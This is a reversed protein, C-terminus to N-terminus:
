GKEVYDMGVEVVPVGEETLPLLWEFLREMEESSDARIIVEIAGLSEEKAPVSPVGVFAAQKNLLFRVLLGERSLGKNFVKNRISDIIKERRILGHFTFLLDLGGEGTLIFSPSIGKEAETAEITEKQLEIGTFLVSIAKTIKESDETPYVAASVKVSIM